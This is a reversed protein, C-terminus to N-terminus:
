GNIVGASEPVPQRDMQYYADSYNVARVTPYQGDALDIESVLWAMAQRRSDSAFSFITRIGDPGPVTVIAEAPPRALIVQNAKAGASVSISDLTGDRKMLVISHPEGVEFAVRQSLTLTLGQQSIVEGDYAKFRTNDVIDIRANPLLARADLTTKTEISLRQGKLKFFERNARFWAQAFSRIGAIEFKKPSRASGDLPLKITETQQTDPDSYQFEIGDYDGDAVFKRTITESNPQKNRHTFLATSASQQRDLALRIRGNQRYGTCFGANAITEVTEEFAINDSDFTYNFQGVEPHWADLQQQVAYIQAMDLDADLDRAGIKPDLAVAAIIDVLRSTASITGSVLRGTADFAGSFGTGDFTPLLRASLANLQRTKVATSRSNAETVTQLTTLNGFHLRAEPTVSYLDAWAIEDQVRGQFDYDHQSTRRMRVRAPGTWATAHEITDAREESVSGSLSATIIEVVGTPVFTGPDLREISIEFGVTEASLGGDDKYLGNQAVINVWVETRNAARLTVWDTYETVPQGPAPADALDDITAAAVIESLFVAGSLIMFGDAVGIVTRSGSYNRTVTFTTEAPSGRDVPAPTTTLHGLNDIAAVTYTGDNTPDDTSAVAISDGVRLDAFPDEWGEGGVGTANFKGGFAQVIATSIVPVDAMTIIIEDGPDVIANINPKKTQQTIVDGGPDPTFTYTEGRALQLQNLPKLILGDVENSRAVTLVKDIIAPGIQLHPADGSNPSTFPWYVAASANSIAEILSQGDQVQSLECYGRSVCYYGYEYKRNQIYKYYTPMMLSPIALVTGYIDEIRQGVRVQNERNGLANNPSQQTRNVNAPMTAPTAMLAQAVSLVVLIVQVWEYPSSGPSQLVVYEPAANALLADINGTIETDASPEGEFVHVGVQPADGYHSLLWEGISPAEFVQEAGAIPHTYLRITTM